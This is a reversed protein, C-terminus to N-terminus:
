NAPGGDQEDDCPGTRFLYEVLYVPRREYEERPQEYDYSNGLVGAHNVQQRGGGDGGCAALRPEREDGYHPKGCDCTSKHVINWESGCHDWDNMREVGIWVNCGHKAIQM